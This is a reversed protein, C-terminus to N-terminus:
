LIYGGGENMLRCIDEETLEIPTKLLVKNNLNNKQRLYYEDYKGIVHCPTGIAISNDPIDRSVVSGAGIIVNNGITVNPLIISNWGVFVNNGISVKVFRTYGISKKPSADHTLLSVHTLTVNDGISILKPCLM